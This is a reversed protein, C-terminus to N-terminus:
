RGIGFARAVVLIVPVLVIGACLVMTIRLWRKNSKENAIRARDMTIQLNMRAVSKLREAEHFDENFVM